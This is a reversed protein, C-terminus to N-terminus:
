APYVLLTRLPATPTAFAPADALPISRLAGDPDLLTLQLDSM